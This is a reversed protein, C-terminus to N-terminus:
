AAVKAIMVDRMAAFVVKEPVFVAQSEWSKNNQKARKYTKVWQAINARFAMRLLQFPYLFVASSDQQDFTFLIYHVPSSENLTWGTKQLHPPMNYKGDPMVSWIELALEEGQRWYKSCGADRTKADIFIQAGKRLTAIYDIGKKDTETDTAVVSVCGPIMGKITDLDTLLRTGRSYELREVFDYQLDM